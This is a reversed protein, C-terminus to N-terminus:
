NTGVVNGNIQIMDYYLQHLDLDNYTQLCKELQGPLKRKMPDHQWCLESLLRTRFTPSDKVLESHEKNVRLREERIADDSMHSLDRYPLCGDNYLQYLLCGLGWTDSRMTLGREDLVEPPAIRPDLGKRVREPVDIGRWDECLSGRLEGYSSSCSIDVAYDLNCLKVRDDHTVVLHDVKWNLYLINSEHLKVAAKCAEIWWKERIDEISNLVSSLSDGSLYTSCILLKDGKLKKHWLCTSIIDKLSPSSKSHLKRLTSTLNSCWRVKKIVVSIMPELRRAKCRIPTFHGFKCLRRETTLQSFPQGRRLYSEANADFSWLEVGDDTPHHLEELEHLRELVDLEKKKMLCGLVDEWRCKDLDHLLGTESYLDKIFGCFPLVCRDSTCSKSHNRYAKVM